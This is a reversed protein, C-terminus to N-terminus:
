YRLIAVQKKFLPMPRPNEKFKNLIIGEEQTSAGDKKSVMRALFFFSIHARYLLASGKPRSLGLSFRSTMNQIKEMEYLFESELLLCVTCWRFCIWQVM